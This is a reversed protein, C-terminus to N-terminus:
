YTTRTSEPCHNPYDTFCDVSTDCWNTGTQSITVTRSNSMLVPLIPIFKTSNFNMGVQCCLSAKFLQNIVWQSYLQKSWGSKRVTWTTCALKSLEM